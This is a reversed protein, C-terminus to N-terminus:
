VFIQNFNIASQVIGFYSKQTFNACVLEAIILRFMYVSGFKKGFKYADKNNVSFHGDKVQFRRLLSM